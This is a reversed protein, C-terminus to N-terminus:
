VLAAKISELTIPGQRLITLSTSTCDLVTSPVGGSTKGGDVILHVRKNLQRRVEEATTPNDEGSLNASTVALPGIECLLALAIPHDPMRLGITGDPSLVEPLTPLKPVVLTLPGPWFRHAIRMSREDFRDTVRKLDTYDGILIAIARTNSRGKAAFLREVNEAKFPLAALGYVTDTPFAVLGGNQLVDISHSIACPHDAKIIETKM